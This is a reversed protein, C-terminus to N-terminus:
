AIESLTESTALARTICAGALPLNGAQLFCKAATVFAAVVGRAPTTASEAVFLYHKGALRLLKNAHDRRGVRSAERSASRFAIAARQEAGAARAEEAEEEFLALARAHDGERSAAMAQEWVDGDHSVPAAEAGTCAPPRGTEEPAGLRHIRVTDDSWGASGYEITLSGLTILASSDPEGAADALGRLLVEIARVFPEVVDPSLDKGSAPLSVDVVQGTDAMERDIVLTLEGPSKRAAKSM